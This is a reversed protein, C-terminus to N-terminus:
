DEGCLLKKVPADPAEQSLWLLWCKPCSNGAANCSGNPPCNNVLVEDLFEALKDDPLKRLMEGNTM